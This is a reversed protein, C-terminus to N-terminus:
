HYLAPMLLSNARLFLFSSVDAIGVGNGKSGYYHWNRNRDNWVPIRQISAMVDSFEAIAEKFSLDMESSEGCFGSWRPLMAELTLIRNFEADFLDFFSPSKRVVLDYKRYRGICLM